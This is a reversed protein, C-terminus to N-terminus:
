SKSFKRIRKESHKKRYQTPTMKTLRKFTHMLSVPNQYGLEIAIECVHLRTKTLLSKARDMRIQLKYDRYNSKNNQNFFRSVYKPSLCMESAIHDLNINKCNREVFRKIREVQNNKDNKLNQVHLREKLLFHLMDKLESIQIPKEIFDDAHNRLASLIIDKSSYGTMLIVGIDNRHKKIESLVSIGDMKPMMLDLLVVNINNPKKLYTLADEGNSFNIFEYEPFALQISKFIRPNNDIIVIKESIM